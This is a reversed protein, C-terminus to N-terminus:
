KAQLIRGLETEIDAIEAAKSVEEEASMSALEKGEILTAAQTGEVFPNGRGTAEELVAAGEPSTLWLAFLLSANPNDGEKPFFGYLSVVAVPEILSIGLPAGREITPLVTNHPLFYGLDREGAGIADAAAWGSRYLIPDNAALEGAFARLRDADWISLMSSLGNPRAWTGTRGKWAEDTLDEYSTPLDEESVANTNYIQVYIAAHTTLMNANLIRRGEAMDGLGNWDIERLMGQDALAAAAGVADTLFDATPGGAMSEQSVRGLRQAGPVEVFEPEIEPYTERFAAIVQEAQETGISDYWVFTGEEKAAEALADYRIEAEQAHAAVPAVAPAVALAAALAAVGRLAARRHFLLQHM